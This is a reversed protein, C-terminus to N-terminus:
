DRVYVIEGLPTITVKKANRERLTNATRIPFGTGREKAEDVQKGTRADNHPMFSIFRKSIGRIVCVTRGGNGNDMEIMDGKCLWM